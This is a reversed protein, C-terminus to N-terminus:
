SSRTEIQDVNAVIVLPSVLKLSVQAYGGSIFSIGRNGKDM